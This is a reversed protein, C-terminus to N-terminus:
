EIYQILHEIIYNQLLEFEDDDMAEFTVGVKFQYDGRPPNAATVNRVKIIRATHDRGRIRIVCEKLDPNNEFFERQFPTVLFSFSKTSLDFIPLSLREGTRSGPKPVSVEIRYGHPVTFRRETRREIKVIRNPVEFEIGNKDSGLLRTKVGVVSAGKSFITVFVSNSPDKGLIELVEEKISEKPWDVILKGSKDTRDSIRTRVVTGFDKVWIVCASCAGAAATMQHRIEVPDSIIRKRDPATPEDFSFGSKSSKGYKRAM